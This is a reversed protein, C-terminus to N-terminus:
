PIRAAPVIDAFGTPGRTSFSPWGDSNNKPEERGLSVNCQSVGATIDFPDRHRPAFVVWLGDYPHGPEEVHGLGGRVPEPADSRTLSILRRLVIRFPLPLADAPTGTDNWGWGTFPRVLLKQGTLRWANSDGSM